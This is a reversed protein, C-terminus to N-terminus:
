QAIKDDDELFATLVRDWLGQSKLIIEYIERVAGRGGPAAAIIQAADAQLRALTDPTYSM